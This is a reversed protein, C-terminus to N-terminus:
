GVQFGINNAVYLDLDGDNDFDGWTAALSSALDTGIAGTTVQTFTSNGNNQYLLNPVEPDYNTVFLDVFGDNNYDGWATAWADSAAELGINEPTGFSANPDFALALTPLNTGCPRTGGIEFNIIEGPKYDLGLLVNFRLLV